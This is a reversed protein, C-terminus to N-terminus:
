STQNISFGSVEPLLIPVTVKGSPTTGDPLTASVSLNFSAASAAAPVAVSATTGDASATVPANAPDSSTWVPVVGAPLTTGVPLPAEAFLGTAGPVIGTISM